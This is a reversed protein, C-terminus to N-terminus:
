TRSNWMVLQSETGNGWKIHLKVLCKHIKELPPVTFDTGQEITTEWVVANSGDLKHARLYIPFLNRPLNHFAVV